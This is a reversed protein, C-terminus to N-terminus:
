RSIRKGGGGGKRRGQENKEQWICKCARRFLHCEGKQMIGFVSIKSKVILKKESKTKFVLGLSYIINLPMLISIVSVVPRLCVCM